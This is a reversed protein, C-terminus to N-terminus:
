LSSTYPSSSPLELITGTRPVMQKFDAVDPRSGKSAVTRAFTPSVALASSLSFFQSFKHTYSLITTIVQERSLYFMLNIYMM